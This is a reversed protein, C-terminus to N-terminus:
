ENPVQPVKMIEVRVEYKEDNDIFWAAPHPAFTRARILNLLERAQYNQYLNIQSAAEIERAYHFSGMSLNQPIRPIKGTKIIAFNAEFLELIAKQAKEYLTQGNDEWTTEIISQFAIDGNDIGEDVWHITVGALTGTALAWFNPHKGRNYPLFSPHFNLCGIRPINILRPKIIYPWWALLVLDLSMDELQCLIKEDELSKNFLIEKALVNSAIDDNFGGRNEEDLVLCAVSEGITGLFKAVEFGVKDAAFLAINM